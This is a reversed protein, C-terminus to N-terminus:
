ASNVPHIMDECIVQMVAENRLVAQWPTVVEDASAGILTEGVNYSTHVPELEQLRNHRLEQAYGTLLCALVQSSIMTSLQRGQQHLQKLKDSIDNMRQACEFSAQVSAELAGFQVPSSSSGDTDESIVSIDQPHMISSANGLSRNFKHLKHSKRRKNLSSAAASQMLAATNSMSPPSSTSQSASYLKYMNESAQFFKCEKEMELNLSEIRKLIQQRTSIHETISAPNLIQGSSNNDIDQFILTEASEVLNNDRIWPSEQRIWDLGIEDRLQEILERNEADRTIDKSKAQQDDLDKLISEDNVLASSEHAFLPETREHLGQENQVHDEADEDQPEFYQSQAASTALSYSSGLYDKKKSFGHFLSAAKKQVRDFSFTLSRMRRSRKIPSAPSASDSRSSDESSPLQTKSCTIVQLESHEQDEYNAHRDTPVQPLQKLSLHDFDFMLDNPPSSSVVNERTEVNVHDTSSRRSLSQVPSYKFKELANQLIEPNLEECDLQALIKAEIRDGATISTVPPESPEVTSKAPSEMYLDLLSDDSYDDDHVEERSEYPEPSSRDYNQQISSSRSSPTPAESSAGTFVPDRFKEHELSHEANNLPEEDVPQLYSDIILDM